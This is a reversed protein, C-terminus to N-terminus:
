ASADRVPLRGFSTRVNRWLQTQVVIWVLLVPLTKIRYPEFFRQQLVEPMADSASLVTGIMVIAFVIWAGANRRTLAFWIAVGAMAIVFSPSEAKHNFLVCFMLVSALFLVRFRESGWHPLQVLPSLLVLVGVAQLVQNNWAVGLWRHVHEMVSYGRLTSQVSQIAAWSHYQMALDHPSTALLPLAVLVTAVVVGWAAFRPLRYPRFVAFVAAIIPFIKIATGVGVALAATAERRRELEAFAIIMLGALLANSQVNQMAGVTDLFVVARAILAGQATLIRGLGWYLAAANVANWLLVGLTFPVVAFPAFLLAFTPSYVFYDKHVTSAAYLDHGSVLNQWSTRFIIHNNNHHAGAQLSTVVVAAVWLVLLGRSAYRLRAADFNPPALATM